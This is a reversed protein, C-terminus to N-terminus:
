LSLFLPLSPCLSDWLRNWMALRKSHVDQPGPYLRRTEWAEPKWSPQLLQHARLVILKQLRAAQPSPRPATHGQDNM